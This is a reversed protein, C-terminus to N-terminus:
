DLFITDGHWELSEKKPGFEPEPPLWVEKGQFQYYVEGNDFERRLRRSVRFQRDPTVTVYGSDFLAHIDTRLLLGNDIRHVGGASVPRIHAAELVPLVKEGTVACHRRYMETVLVRFTGQGLRPRVLVPDGYPPAVPERVGHTGGARLRMQVADWLSHGVESRMDYTKGQVINPHFDPPAPVWNSRDLFFPDSLLVCGITYSGRPDTPAQRYREIRGQMSDLSAAGNKEEFSDWAFYLPLLVSRVFFGGGVIFHDPHHLKFLFPEGPEVARFTRTGGPQWFNVEDLDPRGALFRYWERDTVAVYFKPAAAM